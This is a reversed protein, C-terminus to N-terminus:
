ARVRAHKHTCPRKHLQMYSHIDISACVHKHMHTRQTNTCAQMQTHVDLDVRAGLSILRTFVRPRFRREMVRLRRLLNECLHMCNKRVGLRHTVTLM